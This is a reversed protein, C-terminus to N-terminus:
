RPVGVLPERNEAGPGPPAPEPRGFLFGQALPIGLRLLEDREAVTEVGEAILTNGTQDAYHCLGAAL